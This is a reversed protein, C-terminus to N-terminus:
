GREISQRHQQAYAIYRKPADELEFAEEPKLDRIYKAPVGAWLQKKLVRRGPPVLAGAAVMAGSEVVCGDMVCAKMGVFSGDEMTCAHLIAIHGVLCHKGVVTPYLRDVHVVSGDQINSGEGIRIANVDGRLVCNYWISAKPGIEVDGILITGPAIFADSAVKPVKGKYPLLRGMMGRAQTGDAEM